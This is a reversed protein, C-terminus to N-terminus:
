TWYYDLVLGYLVRARGELHQPPDRDGLLLPPKLGVEIGRCSVSRAPKARLLLRYIERRSDDGPPPGRLGSAARCRVRDRADARRQHDEPPLRHGQSTRGRFGGCISSGVGYTSGWAGARAGTFWVEDGRPSWSLSLNAGWGTSLVKKRGLRDVVAIMSTLRNSEEFAIWDGDPSVRISSVLPDATEYLVKGLPREIRVRGDVVHLAALEGGRRPWDADRVKELIPRVQEPSMYGVTGLVAGADTLRTATPGDSAPPEGLPSAVLKALGFDLIKVRGERTLFLNAPKLDRHVIGGAHAAALGQAVQIALTVAKRVAMPGAALRQALTEGKLLESVIYPAGEHTGVDFVSLV